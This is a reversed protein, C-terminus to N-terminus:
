AKAPEEFIFYHYKYLTNPVGVFILQMTTANPKVKLTFNDMCGWTMATERDIWPAVGAHLVANTNGPTFFVLHAPPYPLNHTVTVTANGSGDTTVKGENEIVSKPSLARSSFTKDRLDTGELNTQSVEIGKVMLNM